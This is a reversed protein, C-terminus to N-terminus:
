KNEGKRQMIYAREGGRWQNILQNGVSDRQPSRFIFWFPFALFLCGSVTKQVVLVMITAVAFILCLALTATTFCFYSRSTTGLHSAVSGAPVHMADQSPAVRNPTQQLGPDMRIYDEGCWVKDRRMQNPEPGMETGLLIRGRCGPDHSKSFFRWRSGCSSVRRQPRLAFPPLLPPPSAWKEDGPILRLASFSAVAFTTSNLPRTPFHRNGQEPTHTHTHARVSCSRNQKSEAVFLRGARSAACEGLCAQTESSRTLFRRQPAEPLSSEKSQQPTVWFSEPQYQCRNFVPFAVLCRPLFLVCTHHNTWLPILERCYSIQPCAGLYQPHAPGLFVARKFLFNGCLVNPDTLSASLSPGAM